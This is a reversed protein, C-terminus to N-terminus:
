GLQNSVSWQGSSPSNVAALRLPECANLIGSFRRMLHAGGRPRGM